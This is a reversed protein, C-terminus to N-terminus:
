RGALRQKRARLVNSVVICTLVVAVGLSLSGLEGSAGAPRALLAEYEAGGRVGGIFGAIQGSAYFPQINPILSTDTVIVLPRKLSQAWHRMYFTYQQSWPQQVVLAFSTSDKIEGWLPLNSVATGYADKVYADKFKMALTSVAAEEGPLFGLHIYDVGYKKSGLLTPPLRNLAMEAIIPGQSSGAEVIVLKLNRQLVHTIVAILGDGHLSWTDLNGGQDYLVVSGAPLQDVLKFMDRTAQSVNLPLTFPFIRPVLLCLLLVSNLIIRELSGFSGTVVNEAEQSSV